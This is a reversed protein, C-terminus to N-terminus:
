TSYRRQSEVVMNSMGFPVSGECRGGVRFFRRMGRLPVGAVMLATDPITQIKAKRLSDAKYM